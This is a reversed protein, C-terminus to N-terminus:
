RSPDVVDLSFLLVFAFSHFHTIRLALGSGITQWINMTSEKEFLKSGSVQIIVANIILSTRSLHVGVFIRKFM